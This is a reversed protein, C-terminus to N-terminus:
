PSTGLTRQLTLADDRGVFPRAGALAQNLESRAEAARGSKSLAVALHYRIEPNAPDRLRAERLDKLGADVQGQRVRIWGVTDLIVPDNPALQKAKEATALAEPEGLEAQLNALNNLIVPNPGRAAAAQLTARATKKQGAQTQAEALLAMAPVDDPRKKVWGQLLALGKGADGAQVHAVYLRRLTEFDPSRDLATRYHAVAAAPSKRAIAVDGLLRHAPALRADQRVLERLRAEAKDVAGAAVDLEALLLLAPVFRADGQLAKDASYAAGQPNGAALQLYGITVQASPNFAAVRTLSNLTSRAAGMDGKAIQVRALTTQITLAERMLAAADRARELARDTQGSALLLDILAVNAQENTRDKALLRELTSIADASRGQALQVRSTEYLASLDNPDAKLL